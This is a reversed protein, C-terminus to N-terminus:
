FIGGFFAGIGKVLNTAGEAIGGFIRYLEFVEDTNSLKTILRVLVQLFEQLDMLVKLTIEIM